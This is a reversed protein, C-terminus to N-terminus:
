PNLYQSRINLVGATLDATAIRMTLQGNNVSKPATTFNAPNVTTNAVAYAGFGLVPTASTFTGSADTFGWEITAAGGSTLATVVDVSFLILASAQSRTKLWSGLLIDGQAGADVDFDYRSLLINDEPFNRNM